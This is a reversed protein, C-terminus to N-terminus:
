LKSAYLPNAERIMDGYKEKLSSFANRVVHPIDVHAIYNKGKPGYGGTDDSLRPIEGMVLAIYREMNWMGLPTEAYTLKKDKIVIDADYTAYNITMVDPRYKSLGAAMRLQMTADQCLIISHFDLHHEKLLDLLLTINNGCNTSNCELYDPELDYKFKLYNAFVKAEPLGATAVSPFQQRMKIRLTETTHGAGAVIIYNQAIRNQMATALVDGGCLISGGFLVLVDAQDLGYKKKLEQPTLLSIDRRGCFAGLTNICHAIRKQDM